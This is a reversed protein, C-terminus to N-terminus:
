LRYLTTESFVKKMYRSTTKKLTEESIFPQKEPQWILKFIESNSLRNGTIKAWLKLDFYAFLRFKHWTRFEKEMDKLLKGKATHEKKLLSIEKMIEDLPKALNVMLPTHAETFFPNQWEPFDTIKTNRLQHYEEWIETKSRAEADDKTRKKRMSNFLSKSTSLTAQFESSRDSWHTLYELDLLRLVFAPNLAPINSLGRLFTQEPSLDSHSQERTILILDSFRNLGARTTYKRGSTGDVFARLHLRKSIM